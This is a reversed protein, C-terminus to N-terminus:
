LTLVGHALYYQLFHALLDLGDGQVPGVDVVRLVRFRQGQSRITTASLAHNLSGVMTIPM